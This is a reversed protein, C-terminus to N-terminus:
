APLAVFFHRGTRFGKPPPRHWHALARSAEPWRENDLHVDASLPEGDLSGFFVEFWHVDPAVSAVFLDRLQSFFEAYEVEAPDGGQMLLPSDCVRWTGQQSRLESWETGDSPCSHNGFASLLTHFPGMVFKGFADRAAGARDDGIGAFAHWVLKASIASCTAVNLQIMTTALRKPCDQVQLVFALPSPSDVAVRGNEVCCPLGHAKVLEILAETSNFDESL